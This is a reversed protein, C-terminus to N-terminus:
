RHCRAAHGATARRAREYPYRAGFRRDPQPMRRHGAGWTGAMSTCFGARHRSQGGDGACHRHSASRIRQENRANQGKYPLCGHSQLRSRAHRVFQAQECRSPLPIHVFETQGLLGPVPSISLNLKDWSGQCPHPHVFQTQGLHRPLPPTFLNFKDLVGLFPHPPCISNTWSAM